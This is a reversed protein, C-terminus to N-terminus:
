FDTMEVFSQFGYVTHLLEVMMGVCGVANDVNSTIDDAMM